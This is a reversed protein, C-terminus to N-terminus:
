YRIADYGSLYHFSAGSSVVDPIGSLGSIAIMWLIHLADPGDDHDAEPWHSLQEVMATQSTHLRILGNAVHPQLSEIRLQKDTNPTVGMAPVPCKAQASKAILETCLFEQFQVDEVGWLLCGYERQMQIITDIILTPVRRSIRAEIVDLIGTKQSLGGVLIASPDRSVNRKGLSPDCSGFFLWDHSEKVWFQIDKFPAHQSNTPDNQYESDFSHRDDARYQMLMLLGRTGPWSVVAGADMLKKRRHYFQRAIEEGENLYVEEWKDWLDLRDPMKIIAKFKVGSWSPHKLFRSFAADYHLVTGVLLVDMSGDPPGLKLVEKNVRDFAKDRQTKKRVNEDNEIDDMIVFDPRYAGDRYGRFKKNMGGVMVRRNTNTKIDGVRWIRGEGTADPYDQGLRPNFGLEAKVAELELAAQDFADKVIVVFRKRKTLLVWIVLIVSLLTSKAEGRPAAIAKKRGREDDILQPIEDYVFDHFVSPDSTIYHPFYTKAFFQFDDLARKVRQDRDVENIPFGEVETEILLRQAAAYESVAKLFEKETINAALKM